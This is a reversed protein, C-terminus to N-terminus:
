DINKICKIQIGYCSFLKNKLEYYKEKSCSMLNIMSKKHEPWTHIALHSEGLLWFASYGLPVFHHDAFNTIEFKCDKLLEDFIKKLEKPDTKSVWIEFSWVEARM